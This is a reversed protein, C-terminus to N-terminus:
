LMSEARALLGKVRAATWNNVDEIDAAPKGETFPLTHQYSPPGYEMTVSVEGKVRLMNVMSRVWLAEFAEVHRAWTPCRPDPVQPGNEYGVRAHLHHIHPMLPNLAELLDPDWPEVECACTFHSFDGVLKIGAAGAATAASSSVSATAGSLLDQATAPAPQDTASVQQKSTGSSTPSAPSALSPSPPRIHGLLRAIHWPNSFMRGRHIEHIVPVGAADEVAPLLQVLDVMEAQLLVCRPESPMLALRDHQSEDSLHCSLLSIRCRV